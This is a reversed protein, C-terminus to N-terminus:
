QAAPADGDDGEMEIKRVVERPIMAFTTFQEEGKADALKNTRGVVFMGTQDANVCDALPYEDCDHVRDVGYAQARYYVKVAM